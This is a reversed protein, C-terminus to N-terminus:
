SQYVSNIENDFLCNLMAICLLIKNFTYQLKDLLLFLMMWMIMMMITVIMM